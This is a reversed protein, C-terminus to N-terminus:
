AFALLNLFLSKLCSGFFLVVLILIILFFINYISHLTKDYKEWQDNLGLTLYDYRKNIFHDNVKLLENGNTDKWTNERVIKGNIITTKVARYVSPADSLRHVKGM